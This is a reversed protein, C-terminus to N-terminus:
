RKRFGQRSLVPEQAARLQLAYQVAAHSRFPTNWIVECHTFALLKPRCVAFDLTGRTSITPEPPFLVKGAVRDPFMVSSLEDPQCNWDGTILYPVGVAQIATALRTLLEPNEGQTPGVGCELYVNGVCLDFGKRRLVGLQYGKGASEWSDVQNLNIHSASVM